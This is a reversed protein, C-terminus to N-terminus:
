SAAASSASANEGGGVFAATWAEVKPPMPPWRGGEACAAMHLEVMWAMLEPALGLLERRREYTPSTGEVRWARLRRLLGQDSPRSRLAPLEGNPMPVVLVELVPFQLSFEVPNQYRRRAVVRNGGLLRKVTEVRPFHGSVVAEPDPPQTIVVHRQHQLNCLADNPDGPAVDFVNEFTHDLIGYSLHDGWVAMAQAALVGICDCSHGLTLLLVPSAQNGALGVALLGVRWLLVDQDPVLESLLEVLRARRAPQPAIPAPYPVRISAADGAQLPRFRAQAPDYCWEDAFAVVDQRVYPEPARRAAPEDSAEDMNEEDDDDDSPEEEEEDVDVGNDTTGDDVGNHALKSAEVLTLYEQENIAGREVLAEAIELAAHAVATRRSAM